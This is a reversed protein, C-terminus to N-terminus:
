AAQSADLPQVLARLASDIHPDAIYCYLEDCIWGSGLAVTLLDWRYRKDTLDAAAYRARVEPTDLPTIATKIREIHEPKMKLMTTTETQQSFDIIEGWERRGAGSRPQTRAKQTL